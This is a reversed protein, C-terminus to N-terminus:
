VFKQTRQDHHLLLRVFVFGFIVSSFGKQNALVFFSNKYSKKGYFRCVLRATKGICVASYGMREWRILNYKKPHILM